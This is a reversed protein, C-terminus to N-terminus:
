CECDSGFCTASVNILLSRVANSTTFIIVVPVGNAATCGLYCWTLVINGWVLPAFYGLSLLRYLIGIAVINGLYRQPTVVGNSVDSLFGIGLPTNSGVAVCGISHIHRSNGLSSTGEKGGGVIGLMKWDCDSVCCPM